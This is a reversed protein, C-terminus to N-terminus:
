VISGNRLFKVYRYNHGPRPNKESNYNLKSNHGDKRSASWDQEVLM